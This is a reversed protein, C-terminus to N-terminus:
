GVNYHGKGRPNYFSPPTGQLLPRWKTKLLREMQNDNQPLLTYWNSRPNRKERKELTEYHEKKDEEEQTPNLNAVASTAVSQLTPIQLM